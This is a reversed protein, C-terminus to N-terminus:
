ILNQEVNLALRYYFPEHGVLKSYEIDEAASLTNKFHGVFLYEKHGFCHHFAKTVKHLDNDCPSSTFLKEWDPTNSTKKMEIIHKRFLKVKKHFKIYIRLLEDQDYKKELASQEKHNLKKNLFKDIYKGWEEEILKSIRLELDETTKAKSNGCSDEKKKRVFSSISEIHKNM